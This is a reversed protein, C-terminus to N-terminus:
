SRDGKRKWYHGRTPVGVFPDRLTPEPRSLEPLVWSWLYALRIM